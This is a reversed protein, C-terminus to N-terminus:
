ESNFGLVLIQQPFISGGNLTIVIVNECINKRSILFTVSFDPYSQDVCITEKEIYLFFVIKAV